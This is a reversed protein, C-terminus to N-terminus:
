WPLYIPIEEGSLARASQLGSVVAGEVFGINFGNNIWDGTLWVNSFGSEDTKIRHKSSGKLSFVYRESGDINCRWYQYKLRDEGSGNTPDYLYDWKLNGEEDFLGPIVHRLHHNMYELMNEYVEAKQNSPFSTVKYPPISNSDEFAGCVYFLTKPKEDFGKWSDRPLIQNMEAFTDLPETYCTLFKHPDLDIEEPTKNLWVQFAQTQVTGVKQRVHHGM